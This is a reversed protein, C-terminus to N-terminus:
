LRPDLTELASAAAAIRDRHYFQLFCQFYITKLYLHMTQKQHFRHIVISYYWDNYGINKEGDFLFWLLISLFHSVCNYWMMIAWYTKTLSNFKSYKHCRYAVNRANWVSANQNLQANKKREECRHQLEIFKFVIQVNQGTGVFVYM